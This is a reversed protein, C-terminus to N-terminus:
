ILFYYPLFLYQLPKLMPLYTTVDIFIPTFICSGLVFVPICSVFLLKSHLFQLLLWLILVVLADYWLFRLLESGISTRLHSFQLCFLGMISILLTPIFISLAQLRLIAGPTRNDYVHNEKDNYYFYGGCFGAIMIFLAILGRIPALLISDNTNMSITNEMPIKDPSVNATDYSFSFTSGDTLHNAYLDKVRTLFGKKDSSISTQLTGTSFPSEQLLYNQLTYLAYERFLSAYVMENTVMSLTTSPSTIVQILHSKKNAALSHYLSDPILYGCEAKGTQVDLDLTELSDCTYFHLVADGIRHSDEMLNTILDSVEPLPAATTHMPTDDSHTVYLAVSISTDETKQLSTLFSVLIPLSVLLLLFSIQKLQRKTYLKFYILFKKMICRREPNM